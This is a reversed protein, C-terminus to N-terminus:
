DIGVQHLSLEIVVEFPWELTMYDNLEVVLQFVFVVTSVGNRKTLCCVYFDNTSDGMSHSSFTTQATIGENGVIVEVEVSGDVALVELIVTKM